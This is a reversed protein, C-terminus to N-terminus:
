SAPAEEFTIMSRTAGYVRGNEQKRVAYRGPRITYEYTYPKGYILIKQGPTMAEVKRKHERDKAAQARVQERWTRAYDNSPETLLDLWTVPCDYHYPGMSEDMDKYGYGNNKRDAALLHLVVYREVEEGVTRQWLSWLRTSHVTSKLPEIRVETGDDRTYAHPELLYRILRDKTTNYHYTWGM